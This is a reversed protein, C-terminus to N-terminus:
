DPRPHDFRALPVPRAASRLLPCQLLALGTGDKRQGTYNFDVASTVAAVARQRLPLIEETAGASGNATAMVVSGVQDRTLYTVSGTGTRFAVAQGNVLYYRTPTTAEVEYFPFPYFTNICGTEM